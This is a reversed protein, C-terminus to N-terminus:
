ASKRAASNSPQTMPSRPRHPRRHRRRRNQRASFVEWKPTEQILHTYLQYPTLVWPARLGLLKKAAGVCNANMWPWLTINPVRSAGVVKFGQREYFATLDFSGACVVDVDAAGQKFDVAIWYGSQKLCVFCHRFRDRGFLRAFLGAGFGHFVVLATM